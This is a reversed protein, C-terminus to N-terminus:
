GRETKGDTARSGHAEGKKKPYQGFRTDALMERLLKGSVSRLEGASGFRCSDERCPCDDMFLGFDSQKFGPGEKVFQVGPCNISENVCRLVIFPVYDSVEDKPDAYTFPGVKNKPVRWITGDSDKVLITGKEDGRGEGIFEGEVKKGEVMFRMQHGVFKRM